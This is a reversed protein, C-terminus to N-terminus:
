LMLDVLAQNRYNVPFASSLYRSRVFKKNGSCKADDTSSFMKRLSLYRFDYGVEVPSQCRFLFSM